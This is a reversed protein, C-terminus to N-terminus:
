RPSVLFINLPGGFLRDLFFFTGSAAQPVTDSELVALASRTRNGASEAARSGDM